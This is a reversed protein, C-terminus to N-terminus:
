ANGASNSKNAGQLEMPSNTMSGVSGLTQSSLQPSAPCAEPNGASIPHVAGSSIQQPSMPTRQSMQQPSAHQLPQQNLQTMGLTSPSGVQSPSVVARLPSSTELQLQQQLQQQQQNMYLNMGPMLKPPGMPGLGTRQMPNMGPRNMPHGLMSLGTSGPHLQRAGSLGGMGVQSGGLMGARNQMKLRSMFAAAQAAQLQGSRIQQSLTNGINSAQNMSSPHQGVNTMGSISAMPASIGTGGVGRAGGMSMTNGLGALGVMNNAMSGMGIPGGLGMMKRQMLNPLQQQQQPQQPQQQQQQQLLHLQLATSKNVMHNGMQLNSNQGIGNLQSLPNSPLMMQSRQFQPHQQQILSQQNQQHQQQHQLHLSPQTELQQPRTPISVGSLPGQSMQLAQPGPPLMRASAVLYHSSTVSSNGSNTPKAVENPPQGAVAETYQQMQVAPSNPPIGAVIQQSSSALNIRPPRRKLQDEVLYGERIMLSCFQAALLDAYHTSPLALLHDDDVILIDGGDLDGYYLGVTGDNPKETMFMRSQVRPVYSVVNGVRDGHIFSIIRMKCVNTSGGVLSNSLVNVDDKFDENNSSNSLCTSLHQPSFIKPKRISNDDIKIKKPKLQHRMTVMEIKSFRELMSQDALPPTGVSPSNGNLPVSMNSVSVPSGVGSMAQTKPLSNSRRKAAVLPATQRQMSDNASSTLSPTGGVTPVSNVTAKDKHSAGLAASTMAPGFHPGASGSSLEGSKSSLPSQALAGASLRPSQASKRKQFSDEKRPDKELHQTLNNWATQSLGSRMLPHQPLRQQVRQPDLHSTETDVIQVDKKVRHVPGDLKEIEFQEEKAGYRLGQQGATFPAPGTEQNLIGEFAQQNYKQIGANTYQMGRAMAQQPLLSNKWNADAGNFSDMHAGIQHQQFGDVGIQALRARKFNSLASLQGDQNERKGLLSANSNANDGYGIMTDQASPSIGSSSVVPGHDQMSRPTGAGIHYRSQSVLPLAAVSVDPAFNKHSLALLNNPGINQATLNEHINQSMMNGSIMSSDGLRSSEPMRDICAKKVQMTNNSTGEPIQRLRKRRLSCMDLNLELAVSKSCIRDLKPTPDLCLQPQLAKLIRSEVEMLDGYTWSNESILPIDKVVNELSMKLCVKHVVPPYETSPVTSGDVLACKRYDRVECVLSGDIYRCPMDDLIDGPLRGSEIASFLTESTRDYPHLMKPAEHLAALHQVENESCKGISYGDSYLNLTFSVEHGAPISLGKTAFSAVSVGPVDECGNAVDVELKKNSSEDKLGIRSSEKSDLGDDIATESQLCPKPRFRTGTKSVKFSVGM